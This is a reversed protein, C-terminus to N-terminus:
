TPLILVSFFVNFTKLKLYRTYNLRSHVLRIICWSRSELFPRNRRCYFWWNSEWQRFFVSADGTKDVLLYWNAGSFLRSCYFPRLVFRKVRLIASWWTYTSRWKCLPHYSLRPLTVVVSCVQGQKRNGLFLLSSDPFPWPPQTGVPIRQAHQSGLSVNGGGRSISRHTPMRKDTTM